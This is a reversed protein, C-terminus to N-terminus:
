SCFLHAALCSPQVRRNVKGSKGEWSGKRAPSGEPNPVVAAESSGEKEPQKGEALSSQSARLIALMQGSCTATLM